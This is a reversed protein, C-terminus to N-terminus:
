RGEFRVHLWLVPHRSSRHRHTAKDEQDSHLLLNLFDFPTIVESASRQVRLKRNVAPKNRGRVPPMVFAVTSNKIRRGFKRGARCRARERVATEEPGFLLGGEKHHM